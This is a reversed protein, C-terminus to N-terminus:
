KRASPASLTRLRVPFLKPSPPGKRTAEEPPMKSKGRSRGKEMPKEMRPHQQEGGGNLEDLDFEVIKEKPAGELYLLDVPPGDTDPRFNQGVPPPSNAKELNDGFMDELDPSPAPASMSTTAGSEGVGGGPSVAPTKKQGSSFLGGLFNGVSTTVQASTSSSSSSSGATKTKGGNDQGGGLLDAISSGGKPLQPPPVNNLM